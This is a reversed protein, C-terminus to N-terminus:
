VVEVYPYVHQRVYSVMDEYKWSRSISNESHSIQGEAGKMSLGAVCAMLQTPEYQKPVDMVDEPTKGSYLWSLIEDRAFDLYVSLVDDQDSGAIDLLTKLRELKTM